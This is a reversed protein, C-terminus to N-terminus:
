KKYKNNRAMWVDKEEKSMKLGAETTKERLENFLCTIEEEKSTYYSKFWTQDKRLIDSDLNVIRKDTFTLVMFYVREFDDNFKTLDVAYYDYNDDSHSLVSFRTGFDDQNFSLDYQVLDQVSTNTVETQGFSFASMIAFLIVLCTRM